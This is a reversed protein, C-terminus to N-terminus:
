QKAVQQTYVKDGQKVALVYNGTPVDRLDIERNYYGTSNENVEHYIVKGNVDTINVNLEGPQTNFSFAFNGDTPNPYVRVDELQLTNVTNIQGPDEETPIDAPKDVIAPKGCDPRARWEHGPLQEWGKLNVKAKEMQGNREFRVTVNDGPLFHALALHLTAFDEVDFEDIKRIVDGEKLGGEQAGGNSILSNIRCNTGEDSVVYVGLAACNSKRNDGEGHAIAFREGSWTSIKKYEKTGDGNDRVIIVKRAGEEGQPATTIVDVNESLKGEIVTQDGASRFLFITEENPAEPTTEVQQMVEPNLAMEKLIMEPKDGEAIWTETLPKGSEDMRTSTITIRNAKKEVVTTNSQAQIGTVSLVLAVILVSVKKM